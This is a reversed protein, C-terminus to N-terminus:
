FLKNGTVFVDIYCIFYVSDISCFLLFPHRAYASGTVLFSFKVEALYDDSHMSYGTGWYMM